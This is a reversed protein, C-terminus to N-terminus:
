QPVVSLIVLSSKEDHMKAKVLKTKAMRVPTQIPAIEREFMIPIAYTLLFALKPVNTSIAVIKSAIPISVILRMVSFLVTVFVIGSFVTLLKRKPKITSAEVCIHEASMSTFTSIKANGKDVVYTTILPKVPTETM